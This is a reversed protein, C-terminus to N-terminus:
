LAEPAVKEVAGGETVVYCPQGMALWPRREVESPTLVHIDCELVFYKSGDANGSRWADGYLHRFIAERREATVAGEEVWNEPARYWVTFTQKFNPNFAHTGLDDDWFGLTDSIAVRLHKTTTSRAKTGTQVAVGPADAAFAARAEPAGASQNCLEICRQRAYERASFREGAPPSVIYPDDGFSTYRAYLSEASMGPQLHESLSRDIIQRAAAVAAAWTPHESHTYTEEDDMYHANNAVRVVFM